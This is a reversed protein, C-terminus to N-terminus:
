ARSLRKTWCRSCPEEWVWRGGPSRQLPSCLQTLAAEQGPQTRAEPLNGESPLEGLQPPDRRLRGKLLTAAHESVAQAERQVLQQLCAVVARRLDLSSSCLGAQLM